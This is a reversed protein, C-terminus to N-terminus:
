SQLTRRGSREEEDRQRAFYICLQTMAQQMRLFSDYNRCRSDAAGQWADLMMDGGSVEGNERLLKLNNDEMVIVMKPLVNFFYALTISTM